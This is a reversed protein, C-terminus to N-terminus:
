HQTWALCYAVSKLADRDITYKSFHGVMIDNHINHKLRRAKQITYKRALKNRKRDM